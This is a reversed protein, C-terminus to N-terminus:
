AGETRQWVDVMDMWTGKAALHHEQCIGISEFMEPTAVLPGIFLGEAKLKALIAEALEEPTFPHSNSIERKAFATIVERPSM